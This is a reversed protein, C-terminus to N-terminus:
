QTIIIDSITTIIESNLKGSFYKNLSNFTKHKKHKTETLKEDEFHTKLLLIM